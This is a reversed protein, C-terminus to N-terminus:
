CLHYDNFIKRYTHKNFVYMALYKLMRFINKKQRASKFSEKISYWGNLSKLEKEYEESCLYDYLENIEFGKDFNKRLFNAVIMQKAENIRSISQVNFRYNLLPAHLNGFKFGFHAARILFDYDECCSVDRYGNLKEYVEKKGLWSPHPICQYMRLAKKIECDNEPLETVALIKNDSFLRYNCGVLDLEDEELFELEREFRSPESIDDADMRAIFSGKAFSLAKNLSKVLGMNNENIYVELRRDANSKNQAYNIVANNEPDDCILIVQINKHTQELVSCLAKEFYYVPEKYVSMLVSILNENSNKMGNM